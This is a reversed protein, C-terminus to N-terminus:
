EYSFQLYNEGYVNEHKRSSDKYKEYGEASDQEKNKSNMVTFFTGRLGNPRYTQPTVDRKNIRVQKIPKTNPGLRTSTVYNLFIKDGRGKGVGNFHVGYSSTPATMASGTIQKPNEGFLPVTYLSATSDGNYKKKFIDYANEGAAANTLYIEVIPHRNEGSRETRTYLLYRVDSDYYSHLAGGLYSIKKWSNGGNQLPDGDKEWKGATTKYLALGTLCNEIEPYPKIAPVSLGNAYDDYARKQKKKGADNYNSVEYLPRISCHINITCDEFDILTADKSLKNLWASYSSNPAYPPKSTYHESHSKKYESSMQSGKVGVDIDASAILVDFGAKVQVDYDSESKNFSYDTSSYYDIKGGMIVSRLVHTGYQAIIDALTYKKGDKTGGETAIKLNNRYTETLYYSLDVEPNIYVRHLKAKWGISAFSRGYESQEKNSWATDVSGKFSLYSGDLGAKVAVAQSWASVSEEAEYRYYSEPILDKGVHGDEILADLDLIYPFNASEADAYKGALANYGKGLLGVGLPINSNQVRVASPLPKFSAKAAADRQAPTLGELNSLFKNRTEVATIQKLLAATESRPTVKTLSATTRKAASKELATDKSTEGKQAEKTTPTPIRKNKNEQTLVTGTFLTLMVSAAAIMLWTKRIKMKKRRSLEKRSDRLIIM